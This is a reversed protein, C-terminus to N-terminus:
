FSTLLHTVCFAQYIKTNVMEQQMKSREKEINLDKNSKMLKDRTDLKEAVRGLVNKKMM